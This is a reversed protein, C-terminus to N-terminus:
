RLLYFCGVLYMVAMSISIAKLPTWRFLGRFPATFTDYGRFVWIKRWDNFSNFFRQKLKPLPVGCVAQWGKYIGSVDAGRMASQLWRPLWRFSISSQFDIIHPKGDPDRLVNGM